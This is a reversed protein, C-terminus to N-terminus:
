HGLHAKDVIMNLSTVGRFTNKQIDGVLRLQHDEIGEAAERLDMLHDDVSNWWLCKMGEPSTIRIHQRETGITDIQCESLALRVEFSPRRFGHGFPGQRDVWEIVDFLADYDTSLSGDCDSGEGLILAPLTQELSGGQALVTEAHQQCDQALFAALQHMQQADQVRIGFAHEHGISHAGFDRVRTNMPYWQPSRCSGSFSGSPRSSAEPDFGAPPNVVATPMGSSQMLNNALLGLVGKPADSLYIQPAFPQTRESIATLEDKVLQKRADNLETIRTIREAKSDAFFLGFADDLSQGMRRVSNFSPALYFGYFGENLDERNRLKGLRIFHDLAVAMGMFASIFVPHHHERDQFLIQMLTSDEPQATPNGWSDPATYLMRAISISAELLQRNEFTIPMVDAVTGIGAFLRLLQIDSVKESSYIRAYTELLQYLVHAGCIGVNAYTEDLRAPNIIVEAPAMGRDQAREIQKHHDTVITKVGRSAAHDIAQLDNVGVDCTIIWQADPHRQLIQDIDQTRIGHGAAPDPLHLSVHFGLEALGAYGLVGSSIGDMDFDPYIVIKQRSDHIHHLLDVARDMDLLTEHSPDNLRILTKTDWGTRERLIRLLPNSSATM